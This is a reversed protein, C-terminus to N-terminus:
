SRTGLRLLERYTANKQHESGMGQLREVLADFRESWWEDRTKDRRYEADRLVALWGGHDARPAGVLLGGGILWPALWVPAATSAALAVSLAAASHGSPLTM